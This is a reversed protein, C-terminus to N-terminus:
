YSGKLSILKEVPSPYEWHDGPKGGLDGEDSQFIKEGLKWKKEVNGYETFSADLFPPLQLLM